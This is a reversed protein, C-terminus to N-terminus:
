KGGGTLAAVFSAIDGNDFVGDGNMDPVVKPDCKSADAAYTKANNSALVFAAIDLNNFVGNGNADGLVIFDYGFSVLSRDGTVPDVRFVARFDFDVVVLDGTAEVAIGLPSYFAPGTGTGSDSVITRDGTVPDVRIVAGLSRDVVVLAGTAEVAISQPDFPPVSSYVTACDGTVPDVRFVACRGSDVAM